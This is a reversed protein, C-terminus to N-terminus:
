WGTAIRPLSQVLAEMEFNTFTHKLQEIPRTIFQMDFDTTLVFELYRNLELIIPLNVEYLLGIMVFIIVAAYVSNPLRIAM